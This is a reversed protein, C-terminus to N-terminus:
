AGSHARSDLAPRFSRADADNARVPVRGGATFSDLKVFRAGCVPCWFCVALDYTNGHGTDSPCPPGDGLDRHPLNM